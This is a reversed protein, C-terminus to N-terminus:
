DTAVSYLFIVISKGSAAKMENCIAKSSSDTGLTHKNQSHQEGKPKTMFEGERRGLPVCVYKKLQKNSDKPFHNTDSGKLCVCVCVWVYIHHLCVPVGLCAQQIVHCSMVCGVWVCVRVCVCVGCVCVSVCFCEHVGSEQPYFTLWDNVETGGSINFLPPTYELLCSM